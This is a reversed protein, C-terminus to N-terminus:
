SVQAPKERQGHSRYFILIGFLLKIGRARIRGGLVNMVKYTECDGMCAPSADRESDQVQHKKSSPGQKLEFERDRANAANEEASKKIENRLGSSFNGIKKEGGRILYDPAQQIDRLM